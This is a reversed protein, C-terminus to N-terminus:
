LKNNEDTQEGKIKKLEQIMKQAKKIAREQKILDITTDIFAFLGYGAFFIVIYAFINNM